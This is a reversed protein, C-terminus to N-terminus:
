SEDENVELSSASTASAEGVLFPGQAMAENEGIDSM